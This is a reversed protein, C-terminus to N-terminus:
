RHPTFAYSDGNTLGTMTIPSETGTATEGGRGANTTDNATVTYGTIPSGGDSVPVTFTVSASADGATATGITPADPATEAYSIVIEGDGSNTGDIVTSSTASSTVYGVRRGRVAEGV